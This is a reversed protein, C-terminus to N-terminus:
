IYTLILSRFTKDFTCYRDNAQETMAKEAVHTAISQQEMQKQRWKIVRQTSHSQQNSHRRRLKAVRIQTDAKRKAQKINEGIRFRSQGPYAQQPM